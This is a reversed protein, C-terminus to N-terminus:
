LSLGAGAFFSQIVGPKRRLRVIAVNLEYDLDLLDLCCHNRTEVFNLQNWVGEARNLEPAYGPFQELHIHRAGGKALFGKVERGRHIPSGDWIVLLLKGTRRLLHKLFLVSEIGCMAQKRVM